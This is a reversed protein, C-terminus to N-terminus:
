SRQLEWARLLKEGSIHMARERGEPRKESTVKETTGERVVRSLIVM